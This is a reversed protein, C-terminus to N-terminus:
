TCIIFVTIYCPILEVICIECKKADVVSQVLAFYIVPTLAPGKKPTNFGEGEDEMPRCISSSPPVAMASSGGDMASPLATLNPHGEMSSLLAILSGGGM